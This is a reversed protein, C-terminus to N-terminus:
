IFSIIYGIYIFDILLLIRECCGLQKRVWYRQIRM